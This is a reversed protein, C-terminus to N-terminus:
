LRNKAAVMDEVLRYPIRIKGIPIDPKASGHFDSGGTVLLKYKDAIAKYHKVTASNHEPYYVEIGKLGMEIFDPILEDHYFTNPHALVPLGRLKLITQIAEKPTLKFRSVYAPGKDGIYKQFAEHISGVCGEKQMARALHLRGVTAGKALEFVEDPDIKINLSSLKEVMEYIRKVRAESLENLKDKFWDKNYDIFYGLIHVESSGMDASLEIGPVVEISYERGAKIARDLAAVTDHDTIAISYLGADKALRVADEPSNTGDSFNTHVHLDAFKENDEKQM